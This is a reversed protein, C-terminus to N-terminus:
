PRSFNEVCIQFAAATLQEISCWFLPWTQETIQPIAPNGVNYYDIYTARTQAENKLSSSLTELTTETLPFLRYTRSFRYEERWDASSGGALDLRHTAYDLISFAKRDYSLVHLGPNNGFIPSIGPTVLLFTSSPGTEGNPGLRFYDMHTHGALMSVITDRYQDLLVLFNKTYGPQWLSVVKKV